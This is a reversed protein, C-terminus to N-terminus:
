RCPKRTARSLRHWYYLGGVGSLLVLSEWVIVVTRTRPRFGAVSNALVTTFPVAERLVGAQNWCYRALSTLFCEGLLQHSAVTGVVFGLAFLMYAHSLSPFRHWFLLPLGLAWLLMALAHSIDILQAAVQFWISAAPVAM